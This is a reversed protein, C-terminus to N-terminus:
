NVQSFGEGHQIFEMRNGFPDYAYFRHVEVLTKDIEVEVGAHRLTQECVDVDEVLLAAHAQTAPHFPDQTGLHLQFGPSEFWCGGRPQLPPSKPIETLGLLDTYFRRAQEEGGSPMALLVHDLDVVTSM